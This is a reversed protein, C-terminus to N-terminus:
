GRSDEYTTALKLGLHLLHTAQAVLVRRLTLLDDGLQVRGRQTTTATMYGAERVMRSHEVGFRGYPYCFHRVDCGLTSELDQKSGVIQERAQEATLQNLDAHTRTHSGVDMGSSLWLRWENTTMLPKLSVGIETDWSNSGGIMDSVAYCTATFRHKQLVPLANTLNNKYGDDFTIGAVKGQREGKLYPELDRMSLGKYGLVQLLWMQRAFSSPSVVLGRLPTGRAPPIDIQHYMLIPINM